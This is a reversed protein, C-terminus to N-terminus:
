DTTSILSQYNANMGRTEGTTVGNSPCKLIGSHVTGIFAEASGARDFSVPYLSSRALSTLSM